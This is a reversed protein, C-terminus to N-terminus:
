TESFYTVKVFIAAVGIPYRSGADTNSQTIECDLANNGRTHDGHIVARISNELTDLALWLNANNQVM